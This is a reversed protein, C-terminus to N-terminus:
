KNSQIIVLISNVVDALILFPHSCYLDCISDYELSTFKQFDTFFYKRLYGMKQQKFCTCSPYETLNGMNRYHSGSSRNTVTAFEACGMYFHPINFQM